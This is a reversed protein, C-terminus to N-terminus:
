RDLCLTEAISFSVLLIYNNIFCWKTRISYICLSLFNICVKNVYYIFNLYSSSKFFDNLVLQNRIDIIIWKLKLPLFRVRCAKIRSPSWAARLMNSAMFCRWGAPSFTCLHQMRTVWLVGMLLGQDGVLGSFTMRSMLRTLQTSSAKNPKDKPNRSIEM